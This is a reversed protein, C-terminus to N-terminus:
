CIEGESRGKKKPVALDSIFQYLVIQLLKFFFVSYIFFVSGYNSDECLVGLMVSLKNM